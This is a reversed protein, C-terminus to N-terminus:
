ELLHQFLRRLCHDRGDKGDTVEGSDRWMCVHFYCSIDHITSINVHYMCCICIESYRRNSSFYFAFM